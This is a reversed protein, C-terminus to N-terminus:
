CAPSQPWTLTPQFWQFWSGSMSEERYSPHPRRNCYCSWCPVSREAGQTESAKNQPGKPTLERHAGENQKQMVNWTHTRQLTSSWHGAMSLPHPGARPEKSRRQLLKPHKERVGSRQGREETGAGEAVFM